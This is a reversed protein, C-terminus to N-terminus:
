ASQSGGQKATSRSGRSMLDERTYFSNTRDMFTRCHRHEEVDGVDTKRTVAQPPVDM